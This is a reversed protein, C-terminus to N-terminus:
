PLVLQLARVKNQIAHWSSIKVQLILTFEQDTFDYIAANKYLTQESDSVVTGYVDNEITVSRIVFDNFLQGLVRYDVDSIGSMNFIIFIDYVEFDGDMLVNYKFKGWKFYDNNIDPAILAGNDIEVLGYGYTYVKLFQGQVVKSALVLDFKVYLLASASITMTAM